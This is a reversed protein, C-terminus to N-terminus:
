LRNYTIVDSLIACDGHFRVGDTMGAKITKGNTALTESLAHVCPWFLCTRLLLSAKPTTPVM